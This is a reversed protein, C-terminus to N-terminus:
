HSEANGARAQRAAQNRWVGRASSTAIVSLANEAKRASMMSQAGASDAENNGCMAGHQDQDIRQELVYACEIFRVRESSQIAEFCHRVISRIKM